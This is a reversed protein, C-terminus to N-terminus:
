LTGPNNLKGTSASTSIDACNAGLHDCLRIAKTGATAASYARLGYWAKAGSVVDGPGTYSAAPSVCIIGGGIICGAQASTSSCVGLVIASLAILFTLFKRM